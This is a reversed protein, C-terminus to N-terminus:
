VSTEKNGYPIHCLQLRNADGFWLNLAYIEYPQWTVKKGMKWIFLEYSRDYLIYPVGM